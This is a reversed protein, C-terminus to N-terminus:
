LIINALEDTIDKMDKKNHMRKGFESKSAAAEENYNLLGLKNRLLIWYSKERQSRLEQHCYKCFHEVSFDQYELRTERLEKPKM